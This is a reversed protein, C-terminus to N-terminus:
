GRANSEQLKGIEHSLFVMMQGLADRWYQAPGLEDAIVNSAAREREANVEGLLACLEVVDLRRFAVACRDFLGAKPKFPLAM